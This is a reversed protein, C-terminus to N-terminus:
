KCQRCKVYEYLIPISESFWSSIDFVHKLIPRLGFDRSFVFYWELSLFSVREPRSRWISHFTIFTCSNCECCYVFLTFALLHSVPWMHLISHFIDDVWSFRWANTFATCKICRRCSITIKNTYRSGFSDSTYRTQWNETSAYSVFGNEIYFMLCM